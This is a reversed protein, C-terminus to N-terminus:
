APIPLLAGILPVIKDAMYTHGADTPHVGDAGILEPRDVFWREAIPDAFEAGVAHAETGLIDRIRLVSDPVDATPWPPGIVLIRASPTIRRAQGLTDRTMQALQAPDAEQDNRSGFFVVLADDPRVARVALDSFVSGRSGRVDYGSGGESAVDPAVIVGRQALTQWAHETWGNPGEGGEVSGATYSDGIVAVHYQVSGLMTTEYHRQPVPHGSVSRIRPAAAVMALVVLAMVFTSLRTM